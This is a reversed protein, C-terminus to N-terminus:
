VGQGAADELRRIDLVNRAATELLSYIVQLLIKRTNDDIDRMANLVSFARRIWDDTLDYYTAANSARIIQYLANVFVKRTEEDQGDSWQRIIRSQRMAGRKISEVYQFDNGEVAWTLPNHQFIGIQNSRVVHYGEESDLLMGVLSSQPLTKHIRDKMAQYGDSRLFASSFGPGDHSFVREVRSQAYPNCLATAYIALNGGKSHGGTMLRCSLRDLVHNVYRVSETQSPVPSIFAMNLDEKLGVFSADTGRFAVYALDGPLLFTIASFQKEADDDIHNVYFAMETDRFRASGAFAAILRRNNKGDPVNEYLRDANQVDVLARIPTPKGGDLGVVFGCFDLYALKSLVLSDVPNFPSEVLSSQVEDVYALINRM